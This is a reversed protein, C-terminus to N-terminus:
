RSNQLLEKRRVNQVAASVLTLIVTLFGYKMSPSIGETIFYGICTGEDRLPYIIYMSANMRINQPLLERTDFEGYIHNPALQPCGGACGALSSRSGYGVPATGSQDSLFDNNLVLYVAPLKLQPFYEECVSLIEPLTDAKLVAPQFRILTEYFQRMAKDISYYVSRISEITETTNQMGASESFVYRVPSYVAAPVDKGDMLDCLTKMANYGITLYDRDVTTIRPQSRLSHERNDFGTIRVDEPIHIGANQLTEQVGAALDDNCCFIMDPINSRDRLMERATRVGEEIQWSAQYFDPKEFGAEKCADFFGKSRQQAEISTELGNVFAPRRCRSEKLVRRVLGYMAEYNDTGAYVTDELEYNVSVVPKGFKRLRQVTEQRMAPPWARNGQIIFGDYDEPNCLRFIEFAGTEPSSKGDEGFASFIFLQTDAHERASIGAGRYLDTIINYNWDYSLFAARRMNIGEFLNYMKGCIFLSYM